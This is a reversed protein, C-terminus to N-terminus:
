CRPVVQVAVRCAAYANTFRIGSAALRDIHPTRYYRSGQCGLDMWGLDDVLFLVVNPREKAVVSILPLLVCAVVPLVLRTMVM